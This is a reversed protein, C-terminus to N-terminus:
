YVVIPKTRTFGEDDLVKCRKKVERDVAKEFRRKKKAKAKEKAMRLAKDLDDEFTEVPEDDKVLFGDEFDYEHVNELKIEVGTTPDVEYFDTNEDENEDNCCEEDRECSKMMAGILTDCDMGKALMLLNMVKSGNRVLTAVEELSFPTTAVLEESAKVFADMTNELKPVAAATPCPHM